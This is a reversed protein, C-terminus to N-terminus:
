LAPRIKVWQVDGTATLQRSGQADTFTFGAPKDAIPTDTTVDWLKTNRYYLLWAEVVGTSANRKRVPCSQFDTMTGLGLSYYVDAEAVSAGTDELFALLDRIENYAPKNRWDAPAGANNGVAVLGYHAQVNSFSPSGDAKKDVDDLLEFFCARRRNIGSFWVVIRGDYSAATAEDVPKFGGGTTLANQYGTETYWIEIGPFADLIPKARAAFQNDPQLGGPYRHSGILNDAYQAAGAAALKHFHRFGGTPKPALILDLTNTQGSATGTGGLVLVAQAGGVAKAVVRVRTTGAPTQTIAWEKTPASAGANNLTVTDLVALRASASWAELALTVGTGRVDTYGGFQVGAGAAVYASTMLTGGATVGSAPASWQGGSYTFQPDQPTWALAKSAPYSNNSATDHLSSVLIPVGALEPHRARENYMVQMKGVARDPWSDPVPSGDRNQDPENEAEMGICVDANNAALHAVRRQLEADTIGTEPVMPMLWKLGNARCLDALTNASATGDYNGRIYGANAGSVRANAQSTYQYVGSGRDFQQIGIRTRIVESWEAKHATLGPPPPTNPGGGNDPPDQPDQALAVGYRPNGRWRFIGTM